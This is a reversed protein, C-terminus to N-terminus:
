PRESATRTSSPLAVYVDAPALGMWPNTLLARFEEEHTLAPTFQGNWQRRGSTEPDAIHCLEVTELNRLVAQSLV